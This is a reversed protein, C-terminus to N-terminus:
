QNTINISHEFYKTVIRKDEFRRYNHSEIKPKENLCKRIKKSIDNPDNNKVLYKQMKGTLIERPGFNCDTSVVPVGCILSEVITNGFGEYESTVVTLKANKIFPFINEQHPIFHVLNDINLNKAYKKLRSFHKANSGIILLHEKIGSLAYADLLLDFRKTKCSRGISIIYGHPSYIDPVFHDAKEKIDQINFPNYVCFIKNKNASFNNILDERVGNSVTLITKNKYIRKLCLNNLSNVLSNSSNLLSLSKVSHAVVIHPLKTKHFPYYRMGHFYIIDYRNKNIVKDFNRSFFTSYLFSYIVDKFLRKHLKRFYKGILPRRSLGFIKIFIININKPLIPINNDNWVIIDVNHGYDSMSKSIRLVVTTVGTRDFSGLVHAIKM